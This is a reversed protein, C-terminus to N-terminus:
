AGDGGMLEDLVTQIQEETPRAGMLRERAKLVALSRIVQRREVAAAAALPGAGIGPRPLPEPPKPAKGKESNVAVLTWQVLAQRDANLALLHDTHSWPGWATAQPLARWEELSMGDRIATKTLSEPPLGELLV